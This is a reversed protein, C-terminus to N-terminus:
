QKKGPVKSPATTDSNGANRKANWRSRWSTRRALLPTHFSELFLLQLNQGRTVTRTGCICLFMISFNWPECRGWGGM